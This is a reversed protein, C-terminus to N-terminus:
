SPMSALLKKIRLVFRHNHGSHRGQFEILEFRAGIEQLSEALQRHGLQAGYEDSTGADLLIHQLKLINERYDKVRRVPDQGLYRHWIEHDIKGSKLDFFLDGFLPPKKPQPAYCPALSLCLMALMKSPGFSSPNPHNLFESIFAEISGSKEIELITPLILPMLHFEFFSDGSASAVNLFRDPRELALRLAGFGGSSHGMVARYRAASKTSFKQDVWDVLEDAIFNQYNGLSPSNLFQSSGLKSGADPAILICAPLDAQRIAQDLLTQLPRGFISDESFYKMPQNGWASLLYVSPYSRSSDYDPPLYVGVRREASDGM